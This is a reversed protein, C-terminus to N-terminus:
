YFLWLKVSIVPRMPWLTCALGFLEKKRGVSFGNGLLGHSFENLNLGRLVVFRIFRARYYKWDVPDEVMGSTCFVYMVLHTDACNPVSIRVRSGDDKRRVSIGSLSYTSLIVGDVSTTCSDLDVEINTCTENDGGVARVGIKTVMNLDINSSNVLAKEYFANVSTCTDSILNFYTDRRGHVEYCLSPPPQATTQNAVTTSDHFPVTM